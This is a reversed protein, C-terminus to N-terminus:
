EQRHEDGKGQGVVTDVISGKEADKRRRHPRYPYEHRRVGHGGNRFLVLSDGEVLSIGM